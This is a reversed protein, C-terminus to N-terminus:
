ATRSEAAGEFEEWWRAVKRAYWEQASACASLVRKLGEASQFRGDPGKALCRLVVQELDAPVDPRHHSPPVVPDRVHAYMLQTSTAGAFPPQGTLLTYAVGGRAYLDCRRDVVRDGAVQEPTIYQPTGCVTRERCPGVEHRAAVLAVLGFDLLKLFDYRRGRLSAFLKAPKFDRHVLGAAHAEAAGRM